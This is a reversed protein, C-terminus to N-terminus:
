VRWLPRYSLGLRVIRQLLQEYDIGAAHASEAFDEGYSLNPNPNAELVYIRGDPRMRLDLRAYGSLCLSRYVRKCVRTIQKAVAESLDKAQQTKVGLHEQVKYDWKVKATAINPIGERLKTFVLEWIPLLQLRQNGLIGVYFERGEIFEEVLADTQVTQHCDQVRDTLEDPSRVLNATSVGLSADEVTSKVILPYDLRKPPSVKRGRPYVVFRPTPIRHFQLIQKALAKDRSLLLGRPNCGTYPQKMLELYAAVHQDYLTIGHFEELLNFVVQPRFESLAHNIVGLDSWVGLKFVDHGLESLTATVDFETKWEQIQEETLGETSDPPVLDEHMLALIRLKRM